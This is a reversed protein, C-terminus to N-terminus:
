PSILTPALAPSPSPNPYALTVQLNGSALTAHMKRKGSTFLVPLCLIGLGTVEIARISRLFLARVQCCVVLASRRVKKQMPHVKSPCVSRYVRKGDVQIRAAPRASTKARAQSM